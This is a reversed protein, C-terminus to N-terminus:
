NRAKSARKKLAELGPLKKGALFNILAGGALSIHSFSHHINYEELTTSLHGGSIISYIKRKKTLLAIEKLLSVTSESFLTIESFGLPGKMFVIDSNRATHQFQKVTEHGVDGIKSKLPAQFLAYEKRTKKGIAFDVPLLIKSEHKHLINKLLPLFRLYKQKRLWKIEYGLNYGKAFLMLNGLIGSAALTVNKHKLLALLPLYDQIKEGGLLLLIKKRSSFTLHQLARLEKELNPGVASALYRPPLIISGQNRHCVSLADNVYLDFQKCFSIYHNAVSYPRLEDPYARVNKLLIARGAQLNKIAQQAKHGFLDDIYRVKSKLHKRMLKAHLHLSPLYDKDGKRGQHALIIVRAKKNLLDKITRSHEIFRPSELPAKNFLPANIDVRLLIRKQALSVTALKSLYM